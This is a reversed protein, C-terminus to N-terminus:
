HLRGYDLRLYKRVAFKTSFFSILVGTGVIALFLVGFAILFQNDMVGVVEKLAGGFIYLIALIMLFATLGSLIGRWISQLLFPRQIFGSTAGVLQMSRIIFRKSFIALRITNNILAIAILLLIGSFVLLFLSVKKFNSQMEKVLNPHWIVQRVAANQGIEACIKELSDTETYAPKLKLDVSAPLPNQGMFDLFEEKLERQLADAAEERTISKTTRTYPKQDLWSKFSQTEAENVHKRLTILVPIDTKLKNAAQNGVLLFLGMIGLMFLVLTIGFFVSVGSTLNSRSKSKEKAM